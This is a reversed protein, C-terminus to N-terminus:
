EGGEESEETEVAELSVSMTLEKSELITLEKPDEWDIAREANVLLLPIGAGVGSLITPDSVRINVKPALYDTSNRTKVVPKVDVYYRVGEASMIPVRVGESLASTVSCTRSGSLKAEGAGLVNVTVKFEKEVLETDLRKVEALASGVALLVMMFVTLVKMGSGYGMRM